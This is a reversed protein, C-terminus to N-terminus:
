REAQAGREVAAELTDNLHPVRDYRKRLEEFLRSARLFDGLEDGDVGVGNVGGAM